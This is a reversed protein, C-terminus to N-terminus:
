EKRYDECKVDSACDEELKYRINPSASAQTSPSLSVSPVISGIEQKDSPTPRTRLM